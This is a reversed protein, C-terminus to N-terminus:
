RIFLSGTLDDLMAAIPYSEVERLISTSNVVPATYSYELTDGDVTLANLFACDMPLYKELCM